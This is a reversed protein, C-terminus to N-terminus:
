RSLKDVLVGSYEASLAKLDKEAELKDSWIGSMLQQHEPLSLKILDDYSTWNGDVWRCDLVSVKDTDEKFLPNVRKFLVHNETAAVILIPDHSYSYDLSEAEPMGFMGVRAPSLICPKTRIAKKGILEHPYM